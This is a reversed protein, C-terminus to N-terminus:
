ENKLDRKKKIESIIEFETKTIKKENIKYRSFFLLRTPTSIIKELLSKESITKINISESEHRILNKFGSAIKKRNKILYAYDTPHNVIENAKDPVKMLMYAVCEWQEKHAAAM